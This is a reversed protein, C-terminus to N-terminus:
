EGRPIVYLGVAFSVADPFPGYLRYCGFQTKEPEVSTSAFALQDADFLM